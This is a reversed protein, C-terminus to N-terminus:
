ARQMRSGFTGVVSRVLPTTTRLTGPMKPPAVLAAPFLDRLLPKARQPVIGVKRRESAPVDVERSIRLYDPSRSSSNPAVLEFSGWMILLTGRLSNKFHVDTQGRHVNFDSFTPAVFQRVANAGVSRERRIRFLNDRYGPLPQASIRRHMPARSTFARSARSVQQDPQSGSTRQPPM